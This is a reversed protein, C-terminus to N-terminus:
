KDLDSARRGNMREQMMALATEPDIPQKSRNDDATVARASAILRELAIEPTISERSHVDNDPGL